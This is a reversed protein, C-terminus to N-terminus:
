HPIGDFKRPIFFPWEELDDAETVLDSYDADSAAIYASHHSICSGNRLNHLRFDGHPRARM